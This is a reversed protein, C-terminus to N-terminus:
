KQICIFDKETDVDLAREIKYYVTDKNYLNKNLNKLEKVNFICIMHCIEFCRPYDQRRYLDHSIIQDGKSGELEYLCLFPHTSVAEKCLMSKARKKKFWSYADGVQKWTRNPYTLYLMVVNGDLGCDKVVEKLVDRTSSEDRASEDSRLHINCDRQRAIKEIEEDNTSVFTNQLAEEPITDLTHELLRRNKLPLGKSGKRAPIIITANEMKSKM